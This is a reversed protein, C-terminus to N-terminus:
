KRDHVIDWSGKLSWYFVSIIFERWFRSKIFSNLHGSRQVSKNQVGIHHIFILNCITWNIPSSQINWSGKLQFAKFNANCKCIELWNLYIEFTRFNRIKQYKKWPARQYSEIVPSNGSIPRRTIIMHINRNNIAFLRLVHVGLDMQKSKGQWFGLVVRRTGSKKYRSDTIVLLTTIENEM